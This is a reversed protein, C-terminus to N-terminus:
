GLEVGAEAAVGRVYAAAATYEDAGSLHELMLPVDRDELRDLETLLTRYDLHGQGPPVEDIHTIFRQHMIVDKGHCCRIRPGLREVFDHIMAANHYYTRPGCVLNVPDFHVAFRERDIAEILRVYADVSDPYMNPMTELAYFSRTPEVADIIDRVCDVVAEFGEESLNKPDNGDWKAGQSGAINVCCRAGIEDALALRRKCLELAQRRIQEDPSLPNSWAGVEGIVIDADAAAKEYARITDADADDGVPCYAASYGAARVARAWEDPGTYESFVPAGFRM